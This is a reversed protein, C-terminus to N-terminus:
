AAAHRGQQAEINFLTFLVDSEDLEYPMEDYVAFWTRQWCVQNGSGCDYWRACVEYVGDELHEASCYIDSGQYVYRVRQFERSYRYKVDSGTIKALYIKCITNPKCEFWEEWLMGGDGGTEDYDQNMEDPYQDLLEEVSVGLAAAVKMYVCSAKVAEQEELMERIQGEPIGSLKAVEAATRGQRNLFYEAGNM